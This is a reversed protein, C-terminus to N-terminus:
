WVHLSFINIRVVIDWEYRQQIEYIDLMRMADRIAPEIDNADNIREFRNYYLM